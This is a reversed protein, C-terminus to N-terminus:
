EQPEAEAGLFMRDGYLKAFNAFIKPIAAQEVTHVSLPQRERVLKQLFAAMELRYDLMPAFSIIHDGEPFDVFWKPHDPGPFERMYYAPGYGSFPGQVEDYTVLQDKAGHFFMIPAPKSKFTLPTDAELWFAGAMAIVGAYRFGAPLHERALETDNAVNFEAVLSNTAGASSGVIV